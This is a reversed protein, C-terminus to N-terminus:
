SRKWNRDNGCFPRAARRQASKRIAADLPEIKAVIATGDKQWIAEEALARRRRRSKPGKVRRRYIWKRRAADPTARIM